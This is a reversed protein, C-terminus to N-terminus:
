ILMLLIVYYCKSIMCTKGEGDIVIILSYDMVVTQVTKQQREAASGSIPLYDRLGGRHASPVQLPVLLPCTNTNISCSSCGIMLTSRHVVLIALRPPSAALLLDLGQDTIHICSSLNLEALSGVCDGTSLHQLPHM